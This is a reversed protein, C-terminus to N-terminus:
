LHESIISVNSRCFVWIIYRFQRKLRANLMCYFELTKLQTLAKKKKLQIETQMSCYENVYENM